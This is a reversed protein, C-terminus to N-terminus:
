TCSLFQLVQMFESAKREFNLVINRLHDLGYRFISKARRGHKKITLPKLQHLWEGILIAWCLALSLLALLKSLREPDTLHTSELCFGRTKFMGFLTEIGWRKAYDAIASKPASQTAVVLLEGNELRLAAIYVWHGWLRRKHRLVKTQGRQLDVFLGRVKRSTRGNSLKHNERIRIRFPTLPDQLLYGFWAKGVFERDATLCAIKRDGFRQLFQNFLEIRENTNSNGRKDLLCWVLPFAVGEHVVGLMLINFVCDGFQWDTRDISLTWPEPIAMLAVVAEAIEAYDLEYDRFFRQLRKYHSDTQANGAFGTALESFNITKVRFLAILFAALFSLRAGHWALHPRLRERLLTVQNM